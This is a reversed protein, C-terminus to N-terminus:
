NKAVWQEMTIDDHVIVIGDLNCDVVMYFLISIAAKDKDKQRIHVRIKDHVDGSDLLSQFKSIVDLIEDCLVHAGKDNQVIDLCPCFLKKDQKTYHFDVEGM